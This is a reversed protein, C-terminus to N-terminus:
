VTLVCHLGRTTGMISLEFLVVTTSEGVHVGGTLIFAECRVMCCCLIIIIIIKDIRVLVKNNNMFTRIHEHM